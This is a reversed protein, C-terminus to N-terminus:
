HRSVIADVATSVLALVALGLMAVVGIVLTAYHFPVCAVMVIAALIVLVRSRLSYKAANAKRSMMLFLVYYLLGAFEYPYGAAIV